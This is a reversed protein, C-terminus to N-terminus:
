IALGSNAMEFSKRITIVDRKLMGIVFQRPRTIKDAGTEAGGIGAISPSCSRRATSASRPSCADRRAPHAGRRNGDGRETRELRRGQREQRRDAAEADRRRGISLAPQERRHQRRGGFQGSRRRGAAASPAARTTAAARAAPGGGGGGGGGGAAGRGGGRGGRAAGPVPARADRQWRAAHRAARRASVPGAYPGGEGLLGLDQVWGRDRWGVAAIYPGAHRMLTEWMGDGHLAM